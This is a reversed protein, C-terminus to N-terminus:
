TRGEGAWPRLMADDRVRTARGRAQAASLMREQLFDYECVVSGNALLTARVPHPRYVVPQQRRIYWRIRQFTLWDPRLALTAHFIFSEAPERDYERLTCYPSLAQALRFRFQELAPDPIIEVYVARTGSFSGYGGVSYRPMEGQEACVRLFDAVLREEDDTSFPGALTIHPVAIRTGPRFKEALTDSLARVQDRVPGMMRIDILYRTMQMYGPAGSIFPKTM